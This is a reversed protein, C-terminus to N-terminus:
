ARMEMSNETFGEIFDIDPEYWIFGALDKFTAMPYKEILIEKRIKQIAEIQRDLIELYEDVGIRKVVDRWNERKITSKVELESGDDSNKGDTICKTNFYNQNDSTAAAELRAQKIEEKGAKILRASKKVCGSLEFMRGWRKINAIELLHPAPINEWSESKTLYKCVESLAKERSDVLKLNINLKEDDKLNKTALRWDLGNKAFVNQVCRRWLRKIVNEPIFFCVALLHIHSHYTKDSRITFETSKIYGTFYTKTFELKRFLDFAQALVKLTESCSLSVRPMTLTVFRLREREVVKKKAGVPLYERKRLKTIELAERAISRNRKAAKTMCTHCLKSGCGFLNGFGDFCEGDQNNLDKALFRNNRAACRKIRQALVLAIDDDVKAAVAELVDAVSEGKERHYYAREAATHKYQNNSQYKPLSSQM